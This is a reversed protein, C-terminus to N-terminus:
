EPLSYVRLGWGTAKRHVRRIQNLQYSFVQHISKCFFRAGEAGGGRLRRSNVLRWPEGYGLSGIQNQWVFSVSYKRKRRKKKKKPIEVVPKVGIAYELPPRVSAQKKKHSDFCISCSGFSWIAEIHRYLMWAEAGEATEAGEVNEHVFVWKAHVAAPFFRGRASMMAQSRFASLM